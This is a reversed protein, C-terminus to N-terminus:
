TVMIAGTMKPHPDCVYTYEGAEFTVTWTAEAIEPVTTSEDVGTGSLRFNHIASLDSVAIEYEGAPLTTVPAGEADTLTIVFADPDAETGVVATLAGGAGAAPESTEEAPSAVSAPADPEESGGCATTLAVCAAIVAIKPAKM